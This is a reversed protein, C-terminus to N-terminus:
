LKRERLQVTRAVKQLLRRIVVLMLITEARMRVSRTANTTVETTVKRKVKRTAKSTVEKAVETMVKTTARTGISTAADLTKEMLVIKEIGNTRVALRSMM